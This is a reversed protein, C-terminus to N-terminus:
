NINLSFGHIEPETYSYVFFLKEHFTMLLETSHLYLPMKTDKSILNHLFSSFITLILFFNPLVRPNPQAKGFQKLINIIENTM